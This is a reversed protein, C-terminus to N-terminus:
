PQHRNFEYRTCTGSLGLDKYRQDFVATHSCPLEFFGENTQLDEKPVIDYFHLGKRILRELLAHVVPGKEPVAPDIVLGLANPKRQSKHEYATQHPDSFVTVSGVVHGLEIAHYTLQNSPIWINEIEDLSVPTRRPMYPFANTHIGRNIFGMVELFGHRTAREIHM